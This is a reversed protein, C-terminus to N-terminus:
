AMNYKLDELETREESSHLKYHKFSIQTDVNEKYKNIKNKKWLVCYNRM